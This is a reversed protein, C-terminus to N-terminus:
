DGSFLVLITSGDSVMPHHYIACSTQLLLGENGGLSPDKICVMRDLLGVHYGYVYMM